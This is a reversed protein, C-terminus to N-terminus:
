RAAYNHLTRRRGIKPSLEGILWTGIVVSLTAGSLLLIGELVSRSHEKNVTRALGPTHRPVGSPDVRRAGQPSGSKIQQEDATRQSDRMYHILSRLASEPTTSRTMSNGIGEDYSQPELFQFAFPYKLDGDRYLGFYGVQDRHTVRVVAPSLRELVFKEGEVIIEKMSM